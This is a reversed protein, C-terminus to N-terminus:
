TCISKLPMKKEKGRYLGILPFPQSKETMILGVVPLVVAKSCHRNSVTRFSIDMWDYM